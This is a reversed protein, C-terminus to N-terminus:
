FEFDLHFIPLGSIYTHATAKYLTTVYTIHSAKFSALVEQCTMGGMLLDHEMNSVAQDRNAFSLYIDFKRYLLM